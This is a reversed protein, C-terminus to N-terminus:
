SRRSSRSGAPAAPTGYITNMAAELQALTLQSSSIPVARYTTWSHPLEIALVTQGTPSLETIWRTGGWAILWDSTPMSDPEVARASGM